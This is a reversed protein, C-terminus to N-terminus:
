RGRCGESRDSGDRGGQAQAVRGMLQADTNLRKLVDIHNSQGDKKALNLAERLTTSILTPDHMDKSSNEYALAVSQAPFLTRNYLKQAARAELALGDLIARTLDINFNKLTTQVATIDKLAKNNSAGNEGQMYIPTQNTANLRDRNEQQVRHNSWILHDKEQRRDTLPEGQSIEIEKGSNSGSRFILGKQYVDVNYGAGNQDWNVHAYQGMNNSAVLEHRNAILEVLHGKKTIEKGEWVEALSKEFYDKHAKAVLFDILIREDNLQKQEPTLNGAPHNDSTTKTGTGTAHDNRPGSSRLWSDVADIVQREGPPAYTIDRIILFQARWKSLQDAVPAPLGIRCSNLATKVGEVTIERTQQRVSEYRTLRSAASPEAKDATPIYEEKIVQVDFGVPTPTIKGFFGEAEGKHVVWTLVEMPEGSKYIDRRNEIFEKAEPTIFSRLEPAIEEHKTLGADTLAQSAINKAKSLDATVSITSLASLMTQAKQDGMLESITYWTNPDREAWEARESNHLDNLVGGACGRANTATKSTQIYELVGALERNFQEQAQRKVEFHTASKDYEHIAILAENALESAIGALKSQARAESLVGLKDAADPLETIGNLYQVYFPPRDASLNFGARKLKDMAEQARGITEDETAGDRIQELVKVVEPKYDEYKPNAATEGSELSDPLPIELDANRNPLNQQWRNLKRLEEQSLEMGLQRLEVNIAEPTRVPIIVQSYEDQYSTRTADEDLESYVIHFEGTEPNAIITAASDENEIAIHPIHLEILNETKEQSTAPMPRPEEFLESRTNEKPEMDITRQDRQLQPAESVIKKPDHIANLYYTLNSPKEWGLGDYAEGAIRAALDGYSFGDTNSGLEIIRKLPNPVQNIGIADVIERVKEIAKPIDSELYSDRGGDPNAYDEYSSVINKLSADIAEKILEGQAIHDTAGVKIQELADIVESKYNEFPRYPMDFGLAIYSIDAIKVAEVNWDVPPSAGWAESMERLAEFRAEHVQPLQDPNITKVVNWAAGVASLVPAIERARADSENLRGGFKPWEGKSYSEVVQKLPAELVEEMRVSDLIHQLKPPDTNLMGAVSKEIEFLRLALEYKSQSSQGDPTSNLLWIREIKEKFLDEATLQSLHIGFSSLYAKLSSLTSEAVKEPREEGTLKGGQYPDFGYLVGKKVREIIETQGLKEPSEEWVGVSLGFGPNLDKDYHHTIVSAYRNVRDNEIGHLTTGGEQPESFEFTVGGDTPFLLGMALIENTYYGRGRDQMLELQDKLPKETPLGLAFHALGAIEAAQEQRSLLQGNYSLTYIMDLAVFPTRYAKPMTSADIPRVEPNITKWANRVAKVAADFANNVESESIPYMSLGPWKGEHCSKTIQRLPGEPVELYNEQWLNLTESLRDPLKIDVESLKEQLGRVSEELTKTREARSDYLHQAKRIIELDFAGQNPTIEAFTQFGEELYDYTKLIYSGPKEEFGRLSYPITLGLGDHALIATEIALNWSDLEGKGAGLEAIEQLAKVQRQHSEPAKDLDLSHVAEQAAEIAELISKMTNTNLDDHRFDESGPWAGYEYRNIIRELPENIREKISEREPMHDLTTWEVGLEAAANKEADLLEWAIELESKRAIGEHDRSMELKDAIRDEFLREALSDPLPIEFDTLTVKLGALSRLLKKPPAEETPKGWRYTEFGYGKWMQIDHGKHTEWVQVEWGGGQFTYDKYHEKWEISAKRQAGVVQITYLNRENSWRAERGEAIPSKLDINIDSGALVRWPNERNDWEVERERDDEVFGEIQGWLYADYRDAYDQQWDSLDQALEIPLAIDFERLETRVAGVTSASINPYAEEDREVYGANSYSAGAQNDLVYNYKETWVQIDFEGGNNPTIKAFLGDKGSDNIIYSNDQRTFGQAKEQDTALALKLDEFEQLDVYPKLAESLDKLDRLPPQNELDGMKTPTPMDLAVESLKDLISAFRGFREVEFSADEFERSRDIRYIIAQFSRDDQSWGIEAYHDPKQCDIRHTTKSGAASQRFERTNESRNETAM